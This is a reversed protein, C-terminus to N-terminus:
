ASMKRKRFLGMLGAVGTGLLTLTAPEPTGDSVFHYEVPAAAGGVFGPQGAVPIYVAGDGGGALAVEALTVQNAYLATPPGFTDAGADFGDINDSYFVLSGTGGGPGVETANFRIVDLVAGGFDADTLLVDGSVLGPPNILDYTMVGSLGGPGPDNQFGCAEAVPGGFGNLTGHCNEDVTNGINGDTLLKASTTYSSANAFSALGLIALAAMTPLALSKFQNLKSVNAEM